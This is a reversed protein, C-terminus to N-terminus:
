YVQVLSACFYLLYETKKTYFSYKEQLFIAINYFFRVKAFFYLSIILNLLSM